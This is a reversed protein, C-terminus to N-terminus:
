RAGGEGGEAPALPRAVTPNVLANGPVLISQRARQSVVLGFGGVESDLQTIQLKGGVPTPESEFLTGFVPPLAGRNGPGFTGDPSNNLYEQFPCNAQSVVFHYSYAGSAHPVVPIDYAAAQAAIKLLETLGGAWMVDPQLISITRPAILERFGYKTYEHEGTTFKLHPLAQKIIAYGASDDPHLCEEWWEINLPLCATALEITYQVTLSMWCDVMIPYEPGVSERHATLFAVNKRLGAAGEDPGYPLPVKAGWFGAEKTATPKPGTCYFALEDKIAGGIMKYVPEGRLKGLLDWLALDVVSITAVPLGKRGYFMTARFMQDSLRNLNRPDAGLLFRELHQSVIWCAPPGGFGTAFGTTGDTVEIEVCFSGLVNIGWSTRSARYEAYKSMPVSIPNDILWHGRQVNHYDGGAGVGQTIYTRVASITPFTKM